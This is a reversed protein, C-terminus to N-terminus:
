LYDAYLLLLMPNLSLKPLVHIDKLLTRTIKSLAQDLGPQRQANM